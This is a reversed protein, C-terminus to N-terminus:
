VAAAASGSIAPQRPPIYQEPQRQVHVHSPSLNVSLHTYAGDAAAKAQQQRRRCFCVIGVVLLVGVTGGVGILVMQSTPM